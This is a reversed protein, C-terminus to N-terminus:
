SSRTSWQKNGEETAPVPQHQLSALWAAPDLLRGRLHVEFHLHPGTSNGTSGVEGIAAGAPVPQGGTVLVRSLHCYLTALGGGHDLLVYSGCSGGQFGTSALGALPASVPTGSPAALDIGSHFHGSPCDPDSPEVVVATCGFPQTLVAGPVLPGPAAVPGPRHGALLIAALGAAGIGAAALVANM